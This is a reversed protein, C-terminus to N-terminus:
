HMITVDGRYLLVTGDIFEVEALYLYVGGPARKGRLKGDWGFPFESGGPLFNEQLYVLGGWRDFIHFTRVNEVGVGTFPSFFDNIGDGNPTFVNPFYVNRDKDVDVFVEDFGICGNEDRVIVEFNTSNLVTATPNQCNNCSLLSDGPSWIISDIMLSSQIQVLLQIDQGLDVELDEGANVFIENPETINIEEQVSCGNADFVSVTYEGAFVPITGGIPVAQGANVTFTYPGGTGGTANPVTIFTQQGFCNPPAPDPIAAMIADPSVVEAFATDVCGNQDTVTVTYLAPALGTNTSLTDNPGSDWEYSVNGAGGNFAVVLVGNELGACTISQITEAPIFADLSDPESIEVILPQLCDNADQILVNYIGAPLDDVDATTDGTNWIYTYGGVGGIPVVSVAGDNGGFCSVNEIVTQSQDVELLPPADIFVSDLKSCTGSTVNVTQWGQMLQCATSTSVDFSTEMSEWAYTYVAEPGNVATATAKGDFPPQGNCSVPTIGSFVVEIDQPDVIVFDNSIPGCGNADVISVTYTGAPLQAYVQGTPGVDPAGGNLSYTYPPTGGIVQVIIRGDARGTCSPEILQSNVLDFEFPPPMFLDVTATNSCGLDDTITVNYTGGALGTIPNGSFTVGLFVEEWQYSAIPTASDVIVELEGDTANACSVSVSDFATVMPLAGANITVQETFTNSPVNSDTITLCYDGAMLNNINVVGTTTQPPFVVAGTTCDAAFVEYFPTGDSIEVLISGNGGGDCDDDTPTINVVLDSAQKLCVDGNSFEIDEIFFAGATTEVQIQAGQSGGAQLVFELSSCDGLNGIATFCLSYITTNDSVTLPIGLLSGWAVTIIPQGTVPLEAGFDVVDFVDSTGFDFQLVNPDYQLGYQFALVDQFGAATFEICIQEGPVVCTLAPATFFFPPGVVAKENETEIHSENAYASHNLNMFFLCLILSFTLRALKM